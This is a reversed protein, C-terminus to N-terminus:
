MVDLLMELWTYMKLGFKLTFTVTTMEGVKTKLYVKWSDRERM